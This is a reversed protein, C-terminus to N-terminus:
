NKLDDLLAQLVVSAAIQDVSKSRDKKMKFETIFEDAAFTSLREDAFIIKQNPFFESLNQTFKRVFKSMESESDDMNLPLGVIIAQISNDTIIKELILFDAKNSKRKITLKPTSIIRSLDSIAV